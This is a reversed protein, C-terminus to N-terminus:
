CTMRFLRPPFSFLPDALCISRCQKGWVEVVTVGGGAWCRFSLVFVALARDPWAKVGRFFQSTGLVPSARHNEAGQKAVAEMVKLAFSQRFM